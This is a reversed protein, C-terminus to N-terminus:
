KKILYDMQQNSTNFNIGIKIIPLDTRQFRESYKKQDIQTMAEEPTGDIKIEILYLKNALIMALDVRGDRTHVEVDAWAGLLSFVVYLMQQWHGEYKTDRCYPIEKFFTRLGDLGKRIDGQYISLVMEALASETALTDQIYNPLLSGFLSIRVEHNPIDLIYRNLIPDYGKITLYGSQYLLPVINTMSETPTDFQAATAYCRGINSPKVKFKKLMKILYSPTASAFWFADFKKKDFCCILSYPNFIEPSHESFGYGDYEFRLRKLTEEDTLSQEAALEQIDTYMQAMMEELTIGCISAYQDFLSINDLNNLESFISMQSFKTIGTIFVFRLVPDCDKLPAYLESMVGRMVDRQYDDHVVNLVPKDYEDIIVVVKEGTSEYCHHILNEFRVGLGKANCQYGFERYLRDLRSHLYERLTEEKDTKIGALSLLIVPHQIWNKELKEIALGKFLEKRGEFYAKLTSAMLSKGFRRPRSLFTYKSGYKVLNYLNETKDVYVYGGEIIESFTQIGIPYQRHQAM